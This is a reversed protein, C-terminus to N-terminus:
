CESHFVNIIAKFSNLGKDFSELMDGYLPHHSLSMEHHFTDFEQQPQCLHVSPSNVGSPDPFHISGQSDSPEAAKMLWVLMSPLCVTDSAVVELAAVLLTM